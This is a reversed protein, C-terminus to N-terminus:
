AARAMEAVKEWTTNALSPRANMRDLWAVLHPHPGALTEWEPLDRFFDIQPALLVDALFLGDGGFYPGVGLIGALM